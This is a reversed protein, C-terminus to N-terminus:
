VSALSPLGDSTLSVLLIVTSSVSLCGICIEFFIRFFRSPTRLPMIRLTLILLIEWQYPCPFPKELGLPLLPQKFWDSMEVTYLEKECFCWFHLSRLSTQVDINIIDSSTQERVNDTSLMNTLKYGPFGPLRAGFWHSSKGQRKRGLLQIDNKVQSQVLNNHILYTYDSIYTKLLKNTHLLMLVVSFHHYWKWSPFKFCWGQHEFWRTTWVVKNINLSGQQHEFYRSKWPIQGM